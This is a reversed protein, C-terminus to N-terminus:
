GYGREDIRDWPGTAVRHAAGCSPRGHICAGCLFQGRDIRDALRGQHGGPLKRRGIQEVGGDQAQVDGALEVGHDGVQELPASGV